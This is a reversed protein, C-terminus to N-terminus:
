ETLVRARVELRTPREYGEVLITVTASRDGTAGKADFHIPVETFSNPEIVVGALDPTTCGCNSRSDLIRLPENSTNTLKVTKTTPHELMVEGFDLLAPELTMPPFTELLAQVEPPLETKTTETTDSAQPADETASEECGAVAAAFVFTVCAILAIPLASRMENRTRTNRMASDGNMDMLIAFACPVIMM